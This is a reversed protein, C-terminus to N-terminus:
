IPCYRCSGPVIRRLTIVALEDQLQYKLDRIEREVKQLEQYGELTAIEGEIRQAIERISDIEHEDVLGLGFAGYRGASKGDTTEMRLDKKVDLGPLGIAKQCAHTLLAQALGEILIDRGAFRGAFEMDNQLKKRFKGKLTNGKEERDKLLRNWKDISRWLVNTPIHQRLASWMRANLKEDVMEERDVTFGIKETFVCLDGYHKQLADRYVMTRADNVEVEQRALDINKRVTRVDYKDAKAISPPSAGRRYRELWEHRKAYDVSPKRGRPM